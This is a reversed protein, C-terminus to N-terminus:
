VRSPNEEEKNERIRGLSMPDLLATGEIGEM